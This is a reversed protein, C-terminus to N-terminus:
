IHILSLTYVTGAPIDIFLLREADPHWLPNEAIECGLSAVLEVSEMANNSRDGAGFAAEFIIM